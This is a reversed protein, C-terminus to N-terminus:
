PCPLPHRESSGKAAEQAGLAHPPVGRGQWGVAPGWCQWQGRGLAVTGLEAPLASGCPSSWRGSDQQKGPSGLFSSLLFKPSGGPRVLCASCGLKTHLWERSGGRPVLLLGQGLIVSVAPGKGQLCLQPCSQSSFDWLLVPIPCQTSGVWLGAQPTGPIGQLKGEGGRTGGGSSLPWVRDGPGEGARAQHAGGEM